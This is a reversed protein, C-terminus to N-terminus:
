SLFRKIDARMTAANAGSSYRIEVNAGNIIADFSVGTGLTEVGIDSYAISTGNTVVKLTGIKIDNSTAEKLKYTIDLGEVTAHAFTFSAIVTNTQSALISVSHIYEEEIFSAKSAQKARRISNNGAILIENAADEIAYSNVNLNGSLQPTLDGQLASSWTGVAVNSGNRRAIILTDDDTPVVAIDAVNVTLTSVGSTRKVSVYACQGDVTLSISQAIIENVTEALGSVQIFASASNQLINTSSNWTWDGGKILKVTKNQQVHKRLVSLAISSGTDLVQNNWLYVTTSALRYAFIFTNEDHPIATIDAVVLAGLNAVNFVANRDIVYYAAQNANISLTGTTGITGNNASSSMVVTAVGLGGSMTIEQAAANTTNNVTTHDSVLQITKDQAKDAMMSTLKANRITLNEGQVSNYNATGTKGGTAITIYNPDADVDSSSGMYALVAAPVQDAIVITEGQKLEANLFRLYIRSIGANDDRFFLWFTDADFPMDEVNAIKIHRDTSPAADTRYNGWAYKADTGLIGTSTGGFNETLTVQSTSDISQIQYYATDEESAVKVFDGAELDTTWSIAGVSTIVASGNTFILQPIIDVNRIIKIYAVQKDNLDVNTTAANAELKYKLRTSLVTLFIDEDWNIQGANGADHSISGRGTLITNGLDYRLGAISGGINPSSWYQTGKMLKIETKVALDNEKFNKIQKDGGEFPSISSSSSSWFNPTRGDTWDFVNFPDPTAAGATGTGFLLPRRDQVSLVNNSSDTEVIAIPLVNSTFISSSIVIKYDLTEALPLTKTIENKTTPNWLYVQSTTTNDVQRVFEVSVYNLASPTFAGDVKTNTTASLVQNSTGSAVNFFTGSEDSKGHLVSSNAVIMQLGNASAGISGAMEIKFGRIVYSETEGLILSVFLEDFDNRVASEISRLHPTDVRQQSIWNQSRKVAM